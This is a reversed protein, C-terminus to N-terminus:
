LDGADTSTEESLACARDRAQQAPDDFRQPQSPRSVAFWCASVIRGSSSGSARGGNHRGDQPIDRHNARRESVVWMKARCSPPRRAAMKM